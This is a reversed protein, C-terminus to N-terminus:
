FSVGCKLNSNCLCIVDMAERKSKDVNPKPIDDFCSAYQSSAFNFQRDLVGRVVKGRAVSRAAAISAPFSSNPLSRANQSLFAKAKTIIM